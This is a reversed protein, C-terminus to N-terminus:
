HGNQRSKMRLVVDLQAQYEDEPIRGKTTAIVIASLIDISRTQELISRTQDDLRRNLGDFHKPVLVKIMWWLITIVIVTALGHEALKEVFPVNLDM